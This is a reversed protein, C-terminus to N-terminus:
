KARWITNNITYFWIKTQPRLSPSPTVVLDYNMQPCKIKWQLHWPFRVPAAGSQKDHVLPVNQLTASSLLDPPWCCWGRPVMFMTVLYWLQRSAASCASECDSCATTKGHTQLFAALIIIFINFNSTQLLRHLLDDRQQQEMLLDHNVARGILELTWIYYGPLLVGGWGYM